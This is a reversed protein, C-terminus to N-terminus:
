GPLGLRDYASRHALVERVYTGSANYSLLARELGGGSRCLYAAATLAADYLNHPDARGDLDGDRAVSRWTSPIFQMPGVARDHVGDGDLAGGDTDGVLAVGDGGDLAVGIIRRTTDGDADLRGGGFTGHRSEVRGIGALVSWPVACTPSEASITAAARRYADYAVLSFDAGAVTAELRAERYAEQAAPVRPEADAIARRAAEIADTNAAVEDVVRVLDARAELVARTAAALEQDARESRSRLDDDVASVLVRRRGSATTAEGDAPLPDGGVGGSVYAAVALEALHRRASGADRGAALRRAREDDITRRLELRVDGLRALEAESREITARSERLTTELGLLEAEARAFREGEVRITRLAPDLDALAADVASVPAVTATGEVTGEVAAEESAGGGEQAGVTAPAGSAAVVVGALALAVLRARRAPSRPTRPTPM